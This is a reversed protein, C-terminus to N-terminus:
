VVVKKIKEAVTEFDENFISLKFLIREHPGNIVGHMKQTNLLCQKYMYEKGQFNVPATNESLLINISCLTGHDLHQELESNPAVTYFRPRATINFLECLEQAYDFTIHRAVKFNPVSYRPDEYTELKDKFNNFETRLKEIDFTYDFLVINEDKFIM